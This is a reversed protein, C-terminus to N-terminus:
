WTNKAGMEGTGHADKCRTALGNGLSTKFDRPWYDSDGSIDKITWHHEKPRPDFSSDVTLLDQRHNWEAATKSRGAQLRRM